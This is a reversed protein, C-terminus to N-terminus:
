IAPNHRSVQGNYELKVSGISNIILKICRNTVHSGRQQANSARPGLFCYETCKDYIAWLNVIPIRNRPRIFRPEVQIFLLALM